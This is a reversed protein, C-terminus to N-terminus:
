ISNQCSFKDNYFKKNLFIKHGHFFYEQYIENTIKKCTM